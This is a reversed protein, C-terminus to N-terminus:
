GLLLVSALRYNGVLISHQSPLKQNELPDPGTNYLAGFTESKGPLPDPGEAVGERSGRMKIKTSHASIVSFKNVPINLIFDFLIFVMIIFGTCKATSRAGNRCYFLIGCTNLLLNGKQYTTLENKFTNTYM